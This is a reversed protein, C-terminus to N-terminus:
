GDFCCGGERVEFVRSLSASGWTSFRNQNHGQCSSLVRLYDSKVRQRAEMQSLFSQGAFMKTKKADLVTGAVKLEQLVSLSGNQNVRRLLHGKLEVRCRALLSM